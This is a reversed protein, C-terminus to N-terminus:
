VYSYARLKASRSRPNAEVEQESPVIPKKNLPIFDPRSRFFNKIIRDEGSHFSIIAAIGGKKLVTGIKELFSELSDMERNVFIRLAMFTRTAPDTKFNRFKSYSRYVANRVIGALEVPSEVPKTKRYRIIGAAIRRSLREDGFKWIIDAIDKESYGNVIDFATEADEDSSDMRMDLPGTENFGFGRCGDLQISSIGLDLVVGDAGEIGEASMIERLRDFRSHFLRFCRADFKNELIKRVNDVALGDRDIGILLGGERCGSMRHLIEESFGGGGLTGDVYIGGSRVGLADIAENLMVPVHRTVVSDM